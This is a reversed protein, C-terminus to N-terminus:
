RRSRRSAPLHDSVLSKRRGGTFTSEEASHSHNELMEGDQPTFLSSKSGGTTKEIRGSSKGVNHSTLEGASFWGRCAQDTIENRLRREEESDAFSCGVGFMTFNADITKGNPTRKIMKAFDQYRNWAEKLQVFQSKVDDRACKGTTTTTHHKDPHLEQVRKLYATRLQDHTLSSHNLFQQTKRGGGELSHSKTEFLLKLLDEKARLSKAANGARTTM